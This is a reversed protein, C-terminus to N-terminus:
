SIHDIPADATGVEGCNGAKMATVAYQYAAADAINTQDIDANTTSVAPAFAATASKAAQAVDDHTPPSPPQYGPMNGEDSEFTSFDANLSTVQSRVNSIDESVIPRPHAPERSLEPPARFRAKTILKSPESSASM